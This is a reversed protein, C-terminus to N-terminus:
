NNHLGKILNNFGDHWKDSISKITKKKKKNTLWRFM